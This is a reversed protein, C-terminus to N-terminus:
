PLLPLVDKPYSEDFNRFYFQDSIELDSHNSIQFELSHLSPIDFQNYVLLFQTNLSQSSINNKIRFEEFNKALDTIHSQRYAQSTSMPLIEEM